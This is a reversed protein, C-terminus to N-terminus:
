IQEVVASRYIFDTLSKSEFVYELYVNDKDAKQKFNLLKDIEGQKDKIDNELEAVKEKSEEISKEFQTIEKSIRAMDKEAAKISNKVKNQKNIVSNLEKEDKKLKEKLDKLTTKDSVKAYVPSIYTFSIILLIIFLIRFLRKM